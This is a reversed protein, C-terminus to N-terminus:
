NLTFEEAEGDNISKTAINDCTGDGFDIFVTGHENGNEVDM